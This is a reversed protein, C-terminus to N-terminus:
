AGGLEALHAQLNRQQQELNALRRREAEVIESKANALFKENSLKKQKGIMQKEVNALAKRARTREADDTSPGGHASSWTGLLSALWADEEITEEQESVGPM